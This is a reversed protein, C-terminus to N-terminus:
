YIELKKGVFDQYEKCESFKNNNNRLYDCDNTTIYVFNVGGSTLTHENLLELNYLPVYVKVGNRNREIGTGNMLFCTKHYNFDVFTISPYTSSNYITKSRNYTLNQGGVTNNISITTSILKEVDNRSEISEISFNMPLCNLKNEREIKEIYYSANDFYNSTSFSFMTLMAFCLTLQILLCLITNRSIKFIQKDIKM